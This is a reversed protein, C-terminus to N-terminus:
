LDITWAVITVGAIKPNIAKAAEDLLHMYRRRTWQRIGDPAHVQLQDGARGVLELPEIWMAYTGDPVSEALREKIKAWLPAIRELEAAQGASPTRVETPATAPDPEQDAIRERMREAAHLVHGVKPDAFGALILTAAAAVLIGIPQEEPKEAQVRKAVRVAIEAAKEEGLKFKRKQAM